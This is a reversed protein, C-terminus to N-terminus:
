SYSHKETFTHLKIGWPVNVCHQKQPSLHKFTIVDKKEGELSVIIEAMGKSHLCFSCLVLRSEESIKPWTCAEELYCDERITEARPSVQQM